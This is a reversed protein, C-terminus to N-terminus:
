VGQQRTGEAPMSAQMRFENATVGHEMAEMADHIYERMGADDRELSDGVNIHIENSHGM